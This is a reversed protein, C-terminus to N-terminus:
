IYRMSEAVNVLDIFWIPMDSLKVEKVKENNSDYVKMFTGLGSSSQRYITQNAVDIYFVPPQLDFVFEGLTGPFIYFILDYFNQVFYENFYVGITGYDIEHEKLKDSLPLDM